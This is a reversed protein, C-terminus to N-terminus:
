DNAARYNYGSECIISMDKILAGTMKKAIRKAQAKDYARIKIIGGNYAIEFVKTNEKIM